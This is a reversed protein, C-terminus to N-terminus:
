WLQHSRSDRPAGRQAREAKPLKLVLHAAEKLTVLQRGRPLDIPGEFPRKWGTDRKMFSPEERQGFGITRRVTRAVPGSHREPM